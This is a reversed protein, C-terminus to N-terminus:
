SQQALMDEYQKKQTEYEVRSADRVEEFIDRMVPSLLFAPLGSENIIDGIKRRTEEILVVTPKQIEKNKEEM